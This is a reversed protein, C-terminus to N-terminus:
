RTTFVPYTSMEGTLVRALLRTQIELLRRYNVRYGFLPHTVLTDMRQEYARFFNKRGDATLAVANGTRVFDNPTVVRTNIASLVASDAILPRFPEMLDLALSARGFRPQHFYGLYPDFGVAQTIITLDKALLSYALSLLANVPDRPPRRNRHVFDFSFNLASPPSSLAPSPGSSAPDEVGSERSEAREADQQM